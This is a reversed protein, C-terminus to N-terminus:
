LYKSLSNEVIHIYVNSRMSDSTIRIDGDNYLVELSGQGNSLLQNDQLYFLQIHGSQLEADAGMMGNSEPVMENQDMLKWRFCLGRIILEYGEKSELPKLDSLGVMRVGLNGIKWYVINEAKSGYKDIVQWSDGGLIRSPNQNLVYGAFTDSTVTSWVTRYAKGVEINNRFLNPYKDAKASLKSILEEVEKRNDRSQVKGVSRILSDIDRRVNQSSIFLPKQFSPIQVNFCAASLLYSIVVIVRVFRQIAM